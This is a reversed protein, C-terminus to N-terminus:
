EKGELINIRPTTTVVQKKIAATATGNRPKTGPKNVITGATYKPTDVRYRHSGKDITARLV